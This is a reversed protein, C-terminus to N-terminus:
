VAQHCPARPGTRSPLRAPGARRCPPVAIPAPRYGAWRGTSCLVASPPARRARWGRPRSGCRRPTKQPGPWPAFARRCSGGPIIWAARVAPARCAISYLINNPALPAASFVVLFDRLGPHLIGMIPHGGHCSATKKLTSPLVKLGSPWNLWCYCTGQM